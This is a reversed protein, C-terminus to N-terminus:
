VRRCAISLEVLEFKYDGHQASTLEGTEDNILLPASVEQCNRSLSRLLGDNRLLRTHIVFMM